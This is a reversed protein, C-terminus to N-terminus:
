QFTDFTCQEIWNDVDAANEFTNFVYDAYFSCGRQGQLESLSLSKKLLTLVAKGTAVSFQIQLPFGKVYSDGQTLKIYGYHKTADPHIGQYCSRLYLMQDITLPAEIKITEPQWLARLPNRLDAVSLADSHGVLRRIDINEDGEANDALQTRLGVNNKAFSCSVPLSGNTYVYGGAIYRSHRLFNYRPSLRLNYTTAPDVVGEVVAFNENREATYIGNSNISLTAEVNQETQIPRDLTLWVVKVGFLEGSDVSVAQFLGNNLATGEVLFTIGKTLWSPQSAYTMFLTAKQAIMGFTVLRTASTDGPTLVGYGTTCIIFADDDYTTSDQPKDSFQVRRTMELAYGSAILDSVQDYTDGERMPLVYEQTTNFEDLVQPGEDPFKAYGIKAKSYLYEPSTSDEIVTFSTLELVQTDRYWNAIPEIVVKDGDDTPLYSMGIADIAQLSSLQKQLSGQMPKGVFGRLSYGNTEMRRSGGGAAPQDDSEPSYYASQVADGRGTLCAVYHRLVDIIPYAPTLSPPATTNAIISLSSSFVTARVDTGKWNQRDPNITLASFIWVPTNKPLDLTIPYSLRPYQGKMRKPQLQSQLYAPGIMPTALEYITEGVVMRLVLSFDVIKPPFLSIDRRQLRADVQFDINVNFTYKGDTKTLLHPTKTRPDDTSIALYSGNFTQVEGPAARESEFPFTIYFVRYAVNQGTPLLDGGFLPSGGENDFSQWDTDPPKPSTKIETTQKIRQAHLLLQAPAPPSIAIPTGAADNVLAKRQDMSLMVDWKARIDPHLSVREATISFEGGKLNRKAFNLRLHQLELSGTTDSLSWTLRVDVDPGESKYANELFTVAEEQQFKLSMEEGVFEFNLGHWTKDRELTWESADWGLPEHIVLTTDTSIRRLTFTSVADSLRYDPVANGHLLDPLFFPAPLAM